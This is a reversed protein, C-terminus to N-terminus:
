KILSLFPTALKGRPERGLEWGRLFTTERPFAACAHMPMNSRAARWCMKRELTRCRAQKVFLEAKRRRKPRSGTNTNCATFPTLLLQQFESEPKNNKKEQPCCHTVGLLAPSPNSAPFARLHHHGVPQHTPVAPSLPGCTGLM